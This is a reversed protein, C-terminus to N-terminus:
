HVGPSSILIVSEVSKAYINDLLYPLWPWWSRQFLGSRSAGDAYSTYIYLDAHAARLEVAFYGALLALLASSCSASKCPYFSRM